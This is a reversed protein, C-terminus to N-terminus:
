IVKALTRAVRSLGLRQGNLILGRMWGPVLGVETDAHMLRVTGSTGELATLEAGGVDIWQADDAGALRCNIQKQGRRMRGELRRAVELYYDAVTPASRRAEAAQERVAAILEESLAVEIREGDPLVYYYADPDLEREQAARARTLDQVARRRGRRSFLLDIGGEGQDGRGM